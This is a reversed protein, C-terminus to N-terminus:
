SWAKEELFRIYWFDFAAVFGEVGAVLHEADPGGDADTLGSAERIRAVMEANDDVEAM